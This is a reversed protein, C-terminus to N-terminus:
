RRASWLERAADVVEAALAGRMVVRLRVGHVDEIEVISETGVVAGLPFEVFEPTAAKHAELRRRLASHNLGLKRATKTPGHALAAEVARAWLAEPIPEGPAGKNRRWRAFARRVDELRIGRGPNGM